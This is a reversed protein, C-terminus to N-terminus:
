ETYDAPLKNEAKLQDIAIRRIRKQIKIENDAKEVVAPDVYIEIADLATKDAVEGYTFGDSIPHEGPPLEAKSVTRGAADKFYGFGTTVIFKNM